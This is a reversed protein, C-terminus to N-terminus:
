SVDCKGSGGTVVQYRGPTNMRSTFRSTSPAYTYIVTPDFSGDLDLEFTFRTRGFEDQSVKGEGYVNSRVREGSVQFVLVKPFWSEASQASRFGTTSLSTRICEYTQANAAHAGILIAVAALGTKYIMFSVGVCIRFYIRMLRM